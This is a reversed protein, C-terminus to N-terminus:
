RDQHHTRLYRLAIAYAAYHDLLAPPPRMGAPLLRFLGRPPHDKFYLARAELTTGTEDVLEFTYGRKQLVAQVIKSGTGDGILLSAPPLELTELQTMDIVKADLLKGEASVFAVGINRGPDFAILM